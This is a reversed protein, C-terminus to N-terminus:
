QLLQKRTEEGHQGREQKHTLSTCKQNICERITIAHHTIQKMDCQQIKCSRWPHHKAVKMKLPSFLLLLLLLMLQDAPTRTINGEELIFKVYPYVLIINIYRTKWHLQFVNSATQQLQLHSTWAHRRTAAKVKLHGCEFWRLCDATPWPPPLIYILGGRHGLTTVLEKKVSGTQMGQVYQPLSQTYKTNTISPLDAGPAPAMPSSDLTRTAILHTAAKSSM